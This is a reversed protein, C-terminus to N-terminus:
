DAYWPEQAIELFVQHVFLDTIDEFLPTSPGRENRRWGAFAEIRELNLDDDLVAILELHHYTLDIRFPPKM